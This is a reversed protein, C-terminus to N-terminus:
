KGQRGEVFIKLGNLAEEYSAGTLQDL